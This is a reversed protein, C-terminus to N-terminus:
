VSFADLIWLGFTDNPIFVRMGSLVSPLGLVDYAATGLSGGLSGIVLTESITRIAMHKSRRAHLWVLLLAIYSPVAAFWVVDNLSAIGYTEALVAGGSAICALFLVIYLAIVSM